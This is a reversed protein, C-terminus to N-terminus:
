PNQSKQRGGSLVTFNNAQPKTKKEVDAVAMAKAPGAASVWKGRQCSWCWGLKVHTSSSQWRRWQVLSKDSSLHNGIEQIGSLRHHHRNCIKNGHHQHTRKRCIVFSMKIMWTAHALLIIWQFITGRYINWLFIGLVIFREYPWKWISQLTNCVLLMALGKSQLWFPAAIQGM